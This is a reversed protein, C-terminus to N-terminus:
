RAGGLREALADLTRPFCERVDLSHGRMADPDWGIGRFFEDVVADGYVERAVHEAGQDVYTAVTM